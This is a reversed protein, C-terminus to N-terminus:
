TSKINGEKALKVAVITGNQLKGKYVEKFGGHGLISDKSFENIPKKM